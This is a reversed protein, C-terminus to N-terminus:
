IKSLTIWYSENHTLHLQNTKTFLLCPDPILRNASSSDVEVYAVFAVNPEVVM